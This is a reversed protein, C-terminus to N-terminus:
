LLHDSICDIAGPILGACLARISLVNGHGPRRVTLGVFMATSFMIGPIRVSNNGVSVDVCRM